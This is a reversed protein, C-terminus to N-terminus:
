MFVPGQSGFSEPGLDDNDLDSLSAEAEAAAAAAAAAEAEAAAREQAAQAETAARAERSKEAAAAEQKAAARAAARRKELTDEVLLDVVRIQTREEKAKWTQFGGRDKIMKYYARAFRGQELLIRNVELSLAYRAQLLSEAISLTNVGSSKDVGDQLGKLCIEEILERPAYFEALVRELVSRSMDRKQVGELVDDLFRVGLENRRKQLDTKVHELAFNTVIIDCELYSRDRLPTSESSQSESIRTMKRDKEALEPGVELCDRAYRMAEVNESKVCGLDQIMEESISERVTLLQHAIKRPELEHMYELRVRNDSTSSRGRLIAKHPNMVVQLVTTDAVIMEEIWDTWRGNGDKKGAASFGHASYNCFNTMWRHEVDNHFELMYRSTTKVAQTTLFDGVTVDLADLLRPEFKVPQQAKGAEPIGDDSWEARGGKSIAALQGVLSESPRLFTRRGSNRLAIIEFVLLALVFARM